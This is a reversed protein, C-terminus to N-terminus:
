RHDPHWHEEAIVIRPSTREAAAVNLLGILKRFYGENSQCPNADLYRELASAMENLRQLADRWEPTLPGYELFEPILRDGMGDQGKEGYRDLWDALPLLRPDGSGRLRQVGEVSIADVGNCIHYEDGARIQRVMRAM